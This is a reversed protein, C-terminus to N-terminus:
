QLARPNARAPALSLIARVLAGPDEEATFHGVGPLRHIAAQPLAQQLRTLEGERFTPDADGWVIAARLSALEERRSWIGDYFVASGALEVGLKWPALRSGWSPFPAMYHEHVHKVLLRRNGFASPVLWRSSANFGLYLLKGLPSAVIRSLRRVDSRDALSWLWTNSLVFGSFRERQALLAGVGIPGGFDHGVLIADSLELAELLNALRRAHDAPHLVSADSPKDSLGFGIHDPAIVRHSGMLQRIVTRWEFSWSPTGHAIVVPQGKGVDLYRMTGADTAFRKPTFPYMGPDLWAPMRHTVEESAGLTLAKNM